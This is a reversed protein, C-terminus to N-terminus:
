GALAPLFRHWARRQERRPDDEVRNAEDIVLTRRTREDYRPWAQESLAGEAFRSWLERMREGVAAYEEEGGLSTMLRIVPADIQDFLAFMEVGHTADIGALKLLRTAFDFRYSWVPAHRSHFDAVRTSPYWFAYDGGFDAAARRTTLGGYAQSMGERAGAPARQFLSAIRQPTRPLIDVPGRFISGERDNTGIILPVPHANGDRFARMPHQPLLEGDIVPAFCYLGPYADPMRVRLAVSAKVLDNVDSGTLLEQPTRQIGGIGNLRRGAATKADGTSEGVVGRLIEIFEAAWVATTAPTYAAASPPSQAIARAFLGRAAPTTMLTTVANGGASEGLVTVNRPDGGFRAINAQVWRLLAVQDRLGLNSAFSRAVTSYRTFDLYGLPGLRYNFSVYLIRGKRVFGEGQGAFGRSSGRSYGGGHISVIVPLLTSAPTRRDPAHVNVTLCDESAADMASPPRGPRNAVTQPAIAGFDSADRIGRWPVVDGPAAFRLEGVPPAAYPIGRWALLGSERVGRVAGGTVRVVLEDDPLQGRDTM